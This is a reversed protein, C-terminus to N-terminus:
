SNPKPEVVLSQSSQRVESIIIINCSCNILIQDAHIRFLDTLHCVDIMDCCSGPFSWTPTSPAAVKQYAELQAVVLPTPMTTSTIDHHWSSSHCSLKVVYSSERSARTRKCGSVNAPLRENWRSTSRSWATYSLGWGDDFGKSMSMVTRNKMVVPITLGAGAVQVDSTQLLAERKVFVKWVASRKQQPQAPSEWFKSSCLCSIGDELLMRFMSLREAHLGVWKLWETFEIKQNENQM